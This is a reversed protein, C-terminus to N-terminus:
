LRPALRRFEAHREDDIRYGDTCKAGSWHESCGGDDRSGCRMKKVIKWGCTYIVRDPLPLATSRPVLLSMYGGGRKWEEGLLGALKASLGDFRAPLLARYEGGTSSGSDGDALLVGADFSL